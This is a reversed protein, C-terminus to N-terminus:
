GGPGIAVAGPFGKSRVKVSIEDAKASSEYHGVCIYYRDNQLVVHSHIRASNLQSQLAAAEVPTSATGILVTYYPVTFGSASPRPHLINPLNISVKPLKLRAFRQFLPGDMGGIIFVIVYSALILVWRIIGWVIMGFLMYNKQARPSPPHGM